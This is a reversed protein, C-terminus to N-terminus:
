SSTAFRTSRPLATDTFILDNLLRVQALVQARVEEFIDTDIELM